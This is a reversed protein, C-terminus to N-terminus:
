HGFVLDVGRNFHEVVFCSGGLSEKRFTPLM